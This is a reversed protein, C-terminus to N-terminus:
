IKKRRALISFTFSFPHNEDRAVQIEEIKEWEDAPIPPFYTDCDAQTHVVTLYIRDALDIVQRFIQGGGIVFVEKEDRDRAFSLATEITQFVLRQDDRDKFLQEGDQRSVVLSMRGPLTKGISQYTKRGMLIHHGMTLTRFRKLDQPLHWPLRNEKGICGNEDMAVILSIIM